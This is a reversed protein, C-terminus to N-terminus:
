ELERYACRSDDCGRNKYTLIRPTPRAQPVARRFEPYVTSRGVPFTEEMM